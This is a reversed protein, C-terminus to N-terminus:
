QVEGEDEPLPLHVQEVVKQLGPPLVETGPWNKPRNPVPTM